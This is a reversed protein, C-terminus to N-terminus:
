IDTQQLKYSYLVTPNKKKRSESNVFSQCYHHYSLM